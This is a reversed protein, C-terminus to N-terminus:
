VVLLTVTSGKPVKTGAAPDSSRVTGFFGGFAKDVEVTFGQAELLSRAEDLQKGTVAPVEVLPPGKSVVLTITDGKHGTGANPNQSIVSGKAVSENYQEDSADVEFGAKELAATADAAPKGNYDVIDIPRPGKSVVLDVATDRKVSAGAKPDSSVVQGAPVKESWDMEVSGVTLHQDALAQSAADQTQGALSPVAYREPGKSVKLEVTSHRRVSSGADPDTGIAKGKAVDESFTPVQEVTLEERELVQQAAAAQQGAVRPVEVPAGPGLLLYWAVAAVAALALVLAVWLGTHRKRPPEDSVDHGVPLWATRDTGDPPTVPLAATAAAARTPEAAAMTAASGVPRADLEAPTMRRRAARVLAALATADAPREDPDKATAQLVVEDLAAPLGPVRSSPAPVGAHVHQYAVHVPHDGSVAKTGTLMEFLLLGAAYVDSRADAVGREVQEPSLYAATGLLVGSTTATQTTVARALGFDAVKVVGDERLIVNEPKVDRHILGADHAAGLAALVPLLIDTAARPSLAGEADLVQRLTQGPVYEMALFMQGRDEGQDFVGVVNPHSLRAASRAERHFRAVFAPDQALDPRMVKLAVERELRTDVALYVTAMGGDALRELVRYRGDLETGILPDAVASSM